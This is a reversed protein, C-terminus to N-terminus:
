DDTHINTKIISFFIIVCAIIQVIHLVQEMYSLLAYQNEKWYKSLDKAYPYKYCGMEITIELDNTYVYNWDQMGGGVVYWDAGNTIGDKFDDGCEHKNLHM